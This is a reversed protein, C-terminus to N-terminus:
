TGYMSEDRSEAVAGLSAVASVSNEAELEETTMRGLGHGSATGDLCSVVQLAPM